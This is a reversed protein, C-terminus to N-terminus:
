KGLEDGSKEERADAGNGASKLRSDPDDQYTMGSPSKPTAKFDVSTFEMELNHQLGWIIRHHGDLVYLDNDDDSYMGAWYIKAGSKPIADASAKYAISKEKSLYDQSIHLEKNAENELPDEYTVKLTEPAGDQFVKYGTQIDDTMDPFAGNRKLKPVCQIVGQLQPLHSLTQTSNMMAQLSHLQRVKASANAILQINRIAEGASTNQLVGDSPMVSGKEEKHPVANSVGSVRRMYSSM